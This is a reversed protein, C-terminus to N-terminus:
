CLLLFVVFLFMRFMQLYIVLGSLLEVEELKDLLSHSPTVVYDLAVGGCLVAESIELTSDVSFFFSFMMFSVSNTAPISKM